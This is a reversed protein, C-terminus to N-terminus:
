HLQGAQIMANYLVYPSIWTVLHDFENPAAALSIDHSVFITDTQNAGVANLNETEDPRVIVPLTNVELVETQGTSFIVAVANNILNISATCNAAASSACVRLDPVLCILGVAALNGSTTFDPATDGGCAPHTADIIQAPNNTRPSGFGSSEDATIAYRIRNNWADLAFGQADTPEIGLTAAPLYGSQAVCRPVPLAPAIVTNHTGGLPNEQGSSGADTNGQFNIATAPCPLRGQQQAYGLLAQKASELTNTTQLQAAQERQARLPLLLAGLVFGLIILVIAMEVLSFGQQKIKQLRM